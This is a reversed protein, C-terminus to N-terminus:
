TKELTSRVRQRRVLDSLPPLDGIMPVADITSLMIPSTVTWGAMTKASWLRSQHLM